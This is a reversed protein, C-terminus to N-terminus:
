LHSFINQQIAELQQLLQKTMQNDTSTMETARQHGESSWEIVTDRSIVVRKIEGSGRKIKMREWAVTIGRRGENQQQEVDRSTKLVEIEEDSNMLRLLKEKLKNIEDEEAERRTIEAHLEEMKTDKMAVIDSMVEKMDNMVAEFNDEQQKLARTLANMHEKHKGLKVDLEKIVTSFVQKANKTATTLDQYGHDKHQLLACDRCILCHDTTCWFRM